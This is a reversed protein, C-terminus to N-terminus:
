RLLTLGMADEGLDLRELRFEENLCSKPARLLEPTEGKWLVFTQLDSWESWVGTKRYVGDLMTAEEYRAQIQGYRWEGGYGEDLEGGVPLADDCVIVEARFQFDEECIDILNKAYEQDPDKGPRIDTDFLGKAYRELARIHDPALVLAGGGRSDYHGFVYGRRFYEKQRSMKVINPEINMGHESVTQTM